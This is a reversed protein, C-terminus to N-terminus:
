EQQKEQADEHARGRRWSQRVERYRDFQGPTLLDKAFAESDDHLQRLATTLQEQNIDGASAQQELQRRQRGEIVLQEALKALLAQDDDTVFKLEEFMRQGTIEPDLQRVERARRQLLRRADAVANPGAAPRNSTVPPRQSPEAAQTPSSQAVTQTTGDTVSEPEALQNIQLQQWAIVAILLGLFAWLVWPMKQRPEPQTIAASQETDNM